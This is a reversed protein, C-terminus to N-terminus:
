TLKGKFQLYLMNKLVEKFLKSPKYGLSILDQNTVLPTINVTKAYKQRIDPIYGKLPFRGNLNAICVELLDEYTLNVTNHITYDSLPKKAHIMHHKVLTCIKTKDSSALDLLSNRVYGGVIYVEINHAFFLTILKDM